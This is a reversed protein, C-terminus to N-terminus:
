GRWPIYVLGSGQSFNVDPNYSRILGSSLNAASSVSDLNEGARLPYTLFLGYDKSVSPDGCSCNVTVNIIADDPIQSGDYINFMQIWDRTTLNAYSVEAIKEYTDGIRHDYKFVHGFFDGNICDCRFPVNIRVYKQISYVNHITNLNYKLINNVSTNIYKSVSYIDNGPQIYYSALALDCGRICVSQVLSIFGSSILFMFAVLLFRLM